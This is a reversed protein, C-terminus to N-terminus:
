PAQACMDSCTSTSHCCVSDPHAVETSPLQHHGAICGCNGEADLPGCCGSASGGKMACQCFGDAARDSCCDFTSMGFETRVPSGPSACECHGTGDLRKSCCHDASSSHQGDRLCSCQNINDGANIYSHSCCVQDAPTYDPTLGPLKEVSYEVCNCMRSESDKFEGSYCAAVPMWEDVYHDVPFWTCHGTENMTETCCHQSNETHEGGPKCPCIGTVLQDGDVCCHDGNGALPQGPATCTESACFEEDGGVAQVTSGSCCSNKEDDTHVPQHDQICDCTGPHSESYTLSCCDTADAALKSDHTHGFPTCGCQLGEDDTSNRNYLATEDKWCCIGSPSDSAHQGSHACKRRGCIRGLDTDITGESHEGSYCCDSDVVLPVWMRVGPSGLVVVPLSEGGPAICDCKNDSTLKQSCCSLGHPDPSDSGQPSCGCRHHSNLIAQVSGTHMKRENGAGDLGSCCAAKKKDILDAQELGLDILKQAGDLSWGPPGNDIILSGHSFYENEALTVVEYTSMDYLPNAAVFNHIQEWSYLRVKAADVDYESTPRICAYEKGDLTHSFNDNTWYDTLAQTDEQVPPNQVALVHVNGLVVAAPVFKM